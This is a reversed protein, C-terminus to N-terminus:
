QSSRKRRLLGSETGGVRSQKAAKRSAIFFPFRFASLRQEVVAADQSAARAGVKM